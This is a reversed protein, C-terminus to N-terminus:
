CAPAEFGLGTLPDGLRRDAQRRKGPAIASAGGGPGHATAQAGDSATRGRTSRPQQGLRVGPRNPEANVRVRVRTSGLVEGSTLVGRSPGVGSGSVACTLGSVRARGHFTVPRYSWWWVCCLEGKDARWALAVAIGQPIPAQPTSTGVPTWRGTWRWMIVM